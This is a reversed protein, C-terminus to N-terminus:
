EFSSMPIKADSNDLNVIVYWCNKDYNCSVKYEIYSPNKEDDSYFYTEKTIKPNEKYWNSYESLSEEKIFIEAEKKTDYASTYVYTLLFSVFLVVLRIFKNKM